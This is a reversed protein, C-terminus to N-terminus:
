RLGIRWIYTTDIFIIYFCLPHYILFRAKYRRRKDAFTQYPISVKKHFEVAEVLINSLFAIIWKWWEGLYSILTIYVFLTPVVEVVVMLVRRGNKFFCIAMAIIYEVVFTYFLYLALRDMCKHYMKLPLVNLIDLLSHALVFIPIGVRYASWLFM